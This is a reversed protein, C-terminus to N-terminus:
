HVKACCESRISDSFINTLFQQAFTHQFVFLMMEHHVLICVVVGIYKTHYFSFATTTHIRIITYVFNEIQQTIIMAFCITIIWTQITSLKQVAFSLMSMPDSNRWCGCVIALSFVHVCLERNIHQRNHRLSAFLCYGSQKFSLIFSGFSHIFSHFLQLVCECFLCRCARVWCFCRKIFCCLIQTSNTYHLVRCLVCRACACACCM